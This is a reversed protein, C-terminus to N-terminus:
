SNWKNRKGRIIEARGWNTTDIGLSKLYSEKEQYTRKDGIEFGQFTSQPNQISSPAQASSSTQKKAYYNVYGSIMEIMQKYAAALNAISSYKSQKEPDAFAVLYNRAKKQKSEVMKPIVNQIFEQVNFSKGPFMSSYAYAYDKAHARMEGPAILYKIIDAVDGSGENAGKHHLHTMEHNLSGAIRALSSNLLNNDKNELSKVLTACGIYLTEVTDNYREVSSEDNVLNFRIRLLSLTPFKDQPLIFKIGRNSESPWNQKIADIFKINSKNCVNIAEKIKNFVFEFADHEIKDQSSNYDHSELWHKFKM